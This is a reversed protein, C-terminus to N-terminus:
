LAAVFASLADEENKKSWPSDARQTAAGTKRARADPLNLRVDFKDKEQEDADTTVWFYVVNLFRDLDM